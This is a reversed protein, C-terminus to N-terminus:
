ELSVRTTPREKRMSKDPRTRLEGMSDVRLDERHQTTERVYERMVNWRPSDREDGHIPPLTSDYWQRSRRQDSPSEVMRTLHCASMTGGRHGTEIRSPGEGESATMETRVSGRGRNEVLKRSRSSRNPEGEQLEGRERLLLAAQQERQQPVPPLPRVSTPDYWVGQFPTFILRLFSAVHLLVNITMVFFLLQLM